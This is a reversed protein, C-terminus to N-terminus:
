FVGSDAIDVRSDAIDVGPAAIDDQQTRKFSVPHVKSRDSTSNRGQLSPRPPSRGKPPLAHPRRARPPLPLVAFVDDENHDAACCGVLATTVGCYCWLLVVTVSCYCWLLVVTAGTMTTIAFWYQFWPLLQLVLTVGVSITCTVANSTTM